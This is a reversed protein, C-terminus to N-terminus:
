ANQRLYSNNLHEIVQSTLQEIQQRDSMGISEAIAFVDKAIRTRGLKNEPQNAKNM